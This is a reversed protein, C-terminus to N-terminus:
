RLEHHGRRQDAGDAVQVEVSAVKHCGPFAASLPQAIKSQARMLHELTAPVDLGHVILSHEFGGFFSTLERELVAMSMPLCLDDVWDGGRPELGHALQVRHAVTEMEEESLLALHNKVELM